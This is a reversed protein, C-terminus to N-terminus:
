PIGPFDETRLHQAESAVGSEDFHVGEEELVARVSDTGGDPWAFNAAPRADKGLVRHAGAAATKSLFTSVTQVNTGAVVALEGYSTWQGAELLELAAELIPAYSPRKEGPSQKLRYLRDSEVELGVGSPNSALAKRGADTIAWGDKSKTIWEAAAMGTSDWSVANEWRTIPNDVSFRSREYATLQDALRAEVRAMVESRRLPSEESLVQLTTQVLLWRRVPGTSSESM